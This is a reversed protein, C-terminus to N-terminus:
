EEGVVDDCRLCVVWSTRHRRTAVGRVAARLFRAVVAPPAKDGILARVMSTATDWAVLRPAAAAELAAFRARAECLVAPAFERERDRSVMVPYSGNPHPAVGCAVRMIRALLYPDRVNFPAEPMALAVYHSVLAASAEGSCAPVLYASVAAADWPSIHEVPVPPAAAAADALWNLMTPNHHAAGRTRRVVSDVTSVACVRRPARLACHVARRWEASMTGHPVNIAVGNM